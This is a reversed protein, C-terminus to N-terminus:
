CATPTRRARRVHTNGAKTISGQRRRAGTSYESPILGLFKMLQKSNDFRTLDDLEVGTTVAVTVQVGRLAQLAEVVPQLRWSTVQDHLEQELRQLRESHETVARVYEQFVM